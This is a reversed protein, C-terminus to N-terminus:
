GQRPKIYNPDNAVLWREVFQIQSGVIAQRAVLKRLLEFPDGEDFKWEGHRRIDARLIIDYAIGDNDIVTDAHINEIENTCFSVIQKLLEEKTACREKGFMYYM